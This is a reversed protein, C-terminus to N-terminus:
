REIPGPLLFPYTRRRVTRQWARDVRRLRQLLAWDNADHAYYRQVEGREIGRALRRNVREIAPPLLRELREKLLNGLLDLVVGRPDYYKDLIGRLMFRRVVPRMAWPLSALFLELELREAGADDRLLPTTVDLYRLEGDVLVWNSAQADLGLRPDVADVIVSAVRDLMAVADDPAAARLWAPLLTEPALMPQVCWLATGDLVELRQLVSEVPVVGRARLSALYEDFLASYRNASHGSPFTPLRKCAFRRGRSSWAIVCSIEGYGLIALEGKEGRALASQLADELALLDDRALPDTM